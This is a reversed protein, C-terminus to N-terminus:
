INSFLVIFICIFIINSNLSNGNNIIPNTPILPTTVNPIQNCVNNKKDKFCFNGNGGCDLDIGNPCPRNCDINEFYPGCFNNFNCIELNNHINVKFCSFGNQCDSNLICTQTCNVNYSSTGCLNSTLGNTLTNTTQTQTQTQTQTDTVFSTPSNTSSMPSNTSSMPSNTSSMPSNTSSMPSNTSSM